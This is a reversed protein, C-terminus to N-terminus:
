ISLGCDNSFLPTGIFIHPFELGGERMLCYPSSPLVCVSSMAWSLLNKNLKVEELDGYQRGEPDM